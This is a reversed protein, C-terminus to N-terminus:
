LSRSIQFKTKIMMMMSCGLMYLHSGKLRSFGKISTFFCGKLVWLQLASFADEVEEIEPYAKDEREVAVWEFEDEEEFSDIVVSTSSVSPSMSPQKKNGLNTVTAADAEEFTELQEGGGGNLIRIDM